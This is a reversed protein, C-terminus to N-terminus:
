KTTPKRVRAQKKPVSESLPSADALGVDAITLEVGLRPDVGLFGMDHAIRRMKEMQLPFAQAILLRIMNPVDEKEVCGAKSTFQYEAETTVFFSRHKADITEGHFGELEMTLVLRICDTPRDADPSCLAKLRARTSGKKSVVADPAVLRKADIGLIRTGELRFDLITLAM